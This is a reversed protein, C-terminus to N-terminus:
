FFVNKHNANQLAFSHLRNPWGAEQLLLIFCQHNKIQPDCQNMKPVYKKFSRTSHRISSQFERFNNQPIQYMIILM